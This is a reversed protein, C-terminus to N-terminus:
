LATGYIIGVVYLVLFLTFDYDGPLFDDSDFVGPDSPIGPFAAPIGPISRVAPFGPIEETVSIFRFTVSRTAFDSVGPESLSERM